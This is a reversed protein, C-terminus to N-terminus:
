LDLTNVFSNTVRTIMPLETLQDLLEVPLKKAGIATGMIQGSISAITDADGGVSLLERMVSEFSDNSIKQAAYLSLPVTDVVYGSCGFKDAISAITADNGVQVIDVLRDRVKSDPISELIMPLLTSGATWTGDCVSKIAIVVALAGVYAEENHHTIRCVDRITQRDGPVDPDLTFALPAIRMAAGNGAAYEGKRGMLAWHGGADLEALAKATSAGLGKLRRERYWATFRSAILSVDVIGNNEALAECTALTLQTDDSIEGCRLEVKLAPSKGEFQQGLSDGLAGGLICGAIQDSSDNMRM